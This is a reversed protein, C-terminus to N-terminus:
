DANSRRGEVDTGGEFCQLACQLCRACIFTEADLRALATSVEEACVDCTLGNAYTTDQWTTRIYQRLVAATLSPTDMARLVACTDEDDAEECAALLEELWTHITFLEMRPTIRLGM